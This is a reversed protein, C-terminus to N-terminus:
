WVILTISSTIVFNLTSFAPLRCLNHKHCFVSILAQRSPTSWAQGIPKPEKESTSSALCLRVLRGGSAQM